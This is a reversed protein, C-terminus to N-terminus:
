VGKYAKMKQYLTSRPIGLRVAAREVNGSEEGVVRLVHLREVDALKDATNSVAGLGRGDFDFRLDAAAITEGHSLLLAREIVNRLERVNGPWSYKELAAFADRHLRREPAGIESGLSRLFTEALIPIDEVRCRLPPVNLTITSIRFYLDSRFKEERSLAVLDRHTAAILRIDSYRDHLEGVRRFQKDEVVKLLKAQMPLDMDGIEDLFVSGGDAIELLGAKKTVAGTFAGREHGFLESEVLDRGFGACNLEVFPEDCRPSTRHLWRALVGKGSGTEGCVLVTRDSGAVSEADARLRQLAESTGVFPDVARVASRSRVAADRKQVKRSAILRQLIVLLTALEVPKTLFHDAGLKVATVALDVSGHGTLVVVPLTPHIAKIESLLTLTDGDPLRYDLVIVDTHATRLASRASRCDVAEEVTWGQTELYDRVAFRISAEDDVLLVSPRKMRGRVERM